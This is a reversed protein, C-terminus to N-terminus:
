SVAVHDAEDGFPDFVNRVPAPSTGPWAHHPAEQTSLAGEAAIEELSLLLPTLPQLTRRSPVWAASGRQARYRAM